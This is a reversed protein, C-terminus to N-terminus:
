YSWAKATSNKCQTEEVFDPVPPEFYPPKKPTFVLPKISIQFTVNPHVDPFDEFNQVLM